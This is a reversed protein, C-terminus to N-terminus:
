PLTVGSNVNPDQAATSCPLTFTRTYSYERPQNSGTDTRELVLTMQVSAPLTNDEQTSDWTTMWESGTSYQVTFSSVDRCLVEDDPTVQTPSMLNGTVRRALGHGQMTSNASDLITLEIQKVDGNSDIHTPGPATSFFIVDDAEHGRDDQNQTAEFSQVITGGPQLANQLDNQVIDLALAASRAPDLAAEAGRKAEFAVRISAYLSAALVAVMGLAVVIELLTFGGRRNARSYKTRRANM